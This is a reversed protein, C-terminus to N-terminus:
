DNRDSRKESKVIRIAKKRIDRLRKRWLKYNIKDFDKLKDSLFDVYILVHTPPVTKVGPGEDEYLDINEKIWSRLSSYSDLDPSFSIKKIKSVKEKNM